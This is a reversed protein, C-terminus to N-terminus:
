QLIWIPCPLSLSFTTLSVISEHHLPFSIATNIVLIWALTTDVLQQNANDWWLMFARLIVSLKFWCGRRSSPLYVTASRLRAMRRAGLSFSGKLSCTLDSCTSQACASALFIWAIMEFIYPEELSSPYGGPCTMRATGLVDSGLVITVLFVLCFTWRMLAFCLANNFLFLSTM